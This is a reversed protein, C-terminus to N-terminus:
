KGAQKLLLVMLTFGQIFLIAALLLRIWALHDSM